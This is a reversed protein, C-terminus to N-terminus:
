FWDMEWENSSHPIASISKPIKNGKEKEVLIHIIFISEVNDIDEHDLSASPYHNKLQDEFEEKSLQEESDYEWDVADCRYEVLWQIGAQTTPAYIENSTAYVEELREENTTVEGVM